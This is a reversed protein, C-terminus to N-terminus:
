ESKSLITNKQGCKNVLAFTLFQEHLRDHVWFKKSCGTFVSVEALHYALEVDIQILSVALRLSLVFWVVLNIFDFM